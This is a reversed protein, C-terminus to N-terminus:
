GGVGANMMLFDVEGVREKVAEWDDENGVDAQLCRVDGKLSKEALRLTEKNFDVISVRMGHKLCLEAVALGIGSTGSTILAKSGSQFAPM